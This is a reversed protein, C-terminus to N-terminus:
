AYSMIVLDHAPLRALTRLDACLWQCQPELPWRSESGPGVSTLAHLIRRGLDNFGRDQEILTVRAIDHREALAAWTATGPGCGLDLLSGMRGGPARQALEEPGAAAAAYTAPARVIAYALREIDTLPPTCTATRAPQPDRPGARYRASLSEAAKALAKGP